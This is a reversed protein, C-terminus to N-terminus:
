RGRMMQHDRIRGIWPLFRGVTAAYDTYARRSLMNDHEIQTPTDIGHLIMNTTCLM